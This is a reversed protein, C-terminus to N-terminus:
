FEKIRPLVERDFLDLEKMVEKHGIGPPQYGLDVVGISAHDHYKKLQSESVLRSFSKQM